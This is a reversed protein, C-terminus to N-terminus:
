VTVASFSFEVTYETFNSSEHSKLFSYLIKCKSRQQSLYHKRLFALLWSFSLSCATNDISLCNTCKIGLKSLLTILSRYYHFFINKNYSKRVYKCTGLTEKNHIYSNQVIDSINITLKFHFCVFKSFGIVFIFSHATFKSSCVTYYNTTLNQADFIKFSVANVNM